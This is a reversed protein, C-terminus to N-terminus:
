TIPLRPQIAHCLFVAFFFDAARSIEGLEGSIEQFGVSFTKKKFVGTDQFWLM